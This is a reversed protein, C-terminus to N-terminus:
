METLYAPFESDDFAGIPRDDVWPDIGYKRWCEAFKWQAQQMATKGCDMVLGRPLEKGIAVPAPGTAQFVFVFRHPEGDVLADLFTQDAEGEVDGASILRPLQAAADLYTAAQIHYRGSAMATAIARDLPKMYPNGFTKLDVVAKVKLYDLKAKMPVGTERDWWFVAVEPYGGTFCRSLDPHKEIMAASYEIKAMTKPYLLTKGEHVGEHEAVVRDWVQATPDLGLLRDILEDKKGGVKAGFTALAAKIDEVTVLADPFDAKDLMPAYRALFANRGELIRAHYARGLIMEDSREDERDPCMWSRAWFDLPSVLLNRIGTNSLAPVALYDSEAMGFVVGEKFGEIEIPAVQPRPPNLLEAFDVM